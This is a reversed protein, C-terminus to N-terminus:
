IYREASNHFFDFVLQLFVPRRKNSLSVLAQRVENQKLFLYERYSQMESDNLLEEIDALADLYRKDHLYIVLLIKLAILKEEVGLEDATEEIVIAM